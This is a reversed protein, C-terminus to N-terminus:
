DHVKGGYLNIKKNFINAFSKLMFRTLFIATIMSVIIGILLVLGFGKVAGMGFLYLSIAVIATTINGDIISSLANKFGLDVAKQIEIKNKLEEKIRSFIIINADVAMGISLIVGAIGSLTLTIELNSIVLLVLSTYAILSLSAVIGPLKYVLIMFIIVCIIGIACAKISIDLAQAGVTPGVYQSTIVKLGFPLSGSDILSALGNAEALKEDINNGGISIFINGGSLAEKVNPSSIVTDDLYISIYSGVLNSTAEEFKQRGVEDFTLSVGPEEVGYDNVSYQVDASIVNSGDVIVNGDPDRFELKATQGLGEIASDKDTENPIEVALWGNSTDATINADYLNKNDLRQRLIVKAKALDDASVEGEIDPAYIISIGGSIDLGTKIETAPIIVGYKASTDYLGFIAFIVLVMVIALVTVIKLVNTSKL